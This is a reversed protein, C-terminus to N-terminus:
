VLSAVSREARKALYSAGAVFLLAVATGGIQGLVGYTPSEPEKNPHPTPKQTESEHTVPPIEDLMVADTKTPVYLAYQQQMTKVNAMLSIIDTKVNKVENDVDMMDGQMTGIREWLQDRSQIYEIAEERKRRKSERAKTLAALQRDNPRKRPNNNFMLPAQLQQQPTPMPVVDMDEPANLPGTLDKM